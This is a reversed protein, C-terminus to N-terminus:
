KEVAELESSAPSTTSPRTAPARTRLDIEITSLEAMQARGKGMSLDLVHGGASHDATIFHFHYGPVNVSKMSSPFWFGVLTGSVDKLEFLSQDKVVDALRRYPPSQRPVSRTRVFSFHGEVSFAFARGDSTRMRDLRTELEKYTLPTRNAEGLSATASPRFFTVASFPTRAADDVLLVQGDSRVQFFRGAIAVMEGDLANFTGLGFDGHERLQAFTVDGDYNGDLLAEITSNQWVASAGRSTCGGVLALALAVVLSM